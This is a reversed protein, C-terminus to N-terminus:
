SAPIPPGEYIVQRPSTWRVRWYVGAVGSRLAWYGLPGTRVTELLRYRSGPRQQVLVEVSTPGAAPRVRGWLSYGGHALRSVVLPVPFGRFLPKPTGQATKLGSPFSRRARAHPGDQLLYQAFAAVRGRLWAIHEAIADYEAQKAPSVGLLNPKTLVGFETIYVPMHPRIAHARAALDLARVLRGIAGIPVDDPSSPVWDPGNAISYAHHGYGYAPLPGCRHAKRYRGNLCLASRLFALPTMNHHLGESRPDVASYGFPATEGLLLRPHEIGAARLGAWAALFLRRYIRPSAPSGNRNWQPQLWGLENPENWIGYLAVQSGFERGVATMFERFDAANPRTVYDRHRGSAWKPVPSTVTLLVPWGLRSAEAIIAGYQGWNYAAPDTADFHPRTASEPAPAVERWYLDIRLAGVGLRQLAEIAAPRTLPDLLESTADFLTLQERSANAAPAAALASAGLAAGAAMLCLTTRLPTVFASSVRARPLNRRGGPEASRRPRARARALAIALPPLTGAPQGGACRAGRGRHVAPAV